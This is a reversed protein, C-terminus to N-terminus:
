VTLGENHNNPNKSTHSADSANDKTITQNVLNQFYFIQIITEQRPARNYESVVRCDGGVETPILIFFM